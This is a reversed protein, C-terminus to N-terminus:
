PKSEAYATAYSNRITHDFLGDRFRTKVAEDDIKAKKSITDNVQDNRSDTAKRKMTTGNSSSLNLM